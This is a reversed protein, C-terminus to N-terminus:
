ISCTVFLFANNYKIAYNHLTQRAGITDVGCIEFEKDSLKPLIRVSIRQQELETLVSHYYDNTGESEDVQKLFDGITHIM